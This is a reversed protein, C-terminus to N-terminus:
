RTTTELTPLSSLYLWIAKLEAEDMRALSEYPMWASERTRITAIFASETWYALNGGPTLNPALPSGPEPSRGGSLGEGHCTRCGFAKVLYKGYAPTVGAPPAQPRPASHDISEAPLANGFAGLSLLMRGPISIVFDDSDRDVPPLSKLYAIIQGLDEDSLHYFDNSPMIFLPKGQHGVGHRIARVWDADDYESGVGGQGPTLNSSDVVALSPEDFFDKGALDEGHCGICFFSALREGEAIAEDSTPITVSEPQVQYTRNLRTDASIALGLVALGVLGVLGALAIGIRKLTKGM